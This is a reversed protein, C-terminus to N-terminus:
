PAEILSLRRALIKREEPSYLTRFQESEMRARRDPDDMRLLRRIEQGIMKRRDEPLQNFERYLERTAQQRETPLRRFADLEERLRQREQPPLSDYQQLREQIRQRREPPLNEIARQRQAPPMAELRDLINPPRPKLARAPPRGGGKRAQQAPAPIALAAGLM